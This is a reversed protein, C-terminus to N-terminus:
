GRAYLSASMYQSTATAFARGDINLVTTINGSGGVGRSSGGGAASMGSNAAGALSSAASYVSGYQSQIGSAFSAGIQAGISYANGSASGAASGFAEGASAGAKGAIGEAESVGEEFGETVASGAEEGAIGLAPIANETDIIVQTPFPNEGEAGQTGTSFGTSLAEGASQGAAQLEPIATEVDTKLGDLIEQWDERTGIPMLEEGTPGTISIEQPQMDSEKERQQQREKLVETITGVMEDATQTLLKTALDDNTGWERVAAKFDESDKEFQAQAEKTANKAINAERTEKTLDIGTLDKLMMAAGDLVDGVTEELLFAGADKDGEDKMVKKLFYNPDSMWKFADALADGAIRTAQAARENGQEEFNKAANEIPNITELGSEIKDYLQAGKQLADANLKEGAAKAGKTEALEWIDNIYEMADLAVKQVPTTVYEELRGAFEAMEMELAAQTQQADSMAGNTEKWKQYVDSMGNAALYALVIDLDGATTKSAELEGNFKEVDVGLRELLEAFSGTAAGTAITEQLGDALSEFKLTEPFSIVAGALHDIAEELQREDVDAALLNSLGEVAASSDGTLAQVEVLQKKIKDFDFGKTEANQQLFSLQRRYDVTGEVFGSVANYAGTALEWVGTVATVAASTKISGIDEQMTEILSRVSGEAREAGEAIGSELQRGTRVSDRGLEEVERDTEELAKELRSMKTRANNLRIAYGDVQQSSHGYADGAEEVARELSQIIERQQAIQNRLNQQKAAFYQASNGNTEYAASVAKLESDMVRMERTAASLAQKFAQEGDLEITTEIKRTAM